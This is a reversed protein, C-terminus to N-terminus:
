DLFAAREAPDEKELAEIFLSQENVTGSGCGAFEPHKLDM